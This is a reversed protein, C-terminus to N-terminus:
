RLQSLTKQCQKLQEIGYNAQEKNYKIEATNSM